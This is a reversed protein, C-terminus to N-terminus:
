IVPTDALSDNEVPSRGTTLIKDEGNEVWSVMSGLVFTSARYLVRRGIYYVQGAKLRELLEQRPILRLDSFTSGRREYARVWEVQGNNSYHVAEIIGDYKIRSM